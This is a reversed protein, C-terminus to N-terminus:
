LVLLALSVQTPIPHAAFLVTLSLTLGAIDGSRQSRAGGNGQALIRGTFTSAFPQTLSSTIPLAGAEVRVIINLASFRGAILAYFGEPTTIAVTRTNRLLHWAGALNAIGFVGGALTFAAGFIFAGGCLITMLAHTSRFVWWARSATLGTFALVIQTNIAVTAACGASSGTICTINFVVDSLALSDGLTKIRIFFTTPLYPTTTGAIAGSCTYQGATFRKATRAFATITHELSREAITSSTTYGLAKGTGAM